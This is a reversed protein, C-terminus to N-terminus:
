SAGIIEQIAILRQRATSEEPDSPGFAILEKLAMSESYRLIRDGREIAWVTPQSWKFGKRRMEEALREQSWLCTVRAAKVLQGIEAEDM